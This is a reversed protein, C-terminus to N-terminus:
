SRPAPTKAADLSLLSQATRRAAEAGFSAFADALFAKARSKYDIGMQGHDLQSRVIACLDRRDQVHPTVGAAIFDVSSLEGVLDITVVPVDMLLAEIGAASGGTIVLPCGQLWSWIDEPLGSAGNAIVKLKAGAVNAIADQYYGAQDKRHLKVVIPIEPIAASLEALAATVARHHPLSVKHGPGSTAVLIWPQGDRLGLLDAISRNVQGSQRPLNEIYTAGTIEVQAAPAGSTLLAARGANGYVFFRDVVHRDHESEASLNGHMLCASAVGHRRLRLAVIRGEVTLDNGVMVTRPKMCRTMEDVSAIIEAVHALESKLITRLCGLLVDEPTGVFAPLAKGPHQELIQRLKRSKERARRLTAGWASRHYVANMGQHHIQHLLRPNDVVFVATHGMQRVAKAVPIQGDAHNAMRPWFVIEALEPKQSLIRAFRAGGRQELVWDRLPEPFWALARERWRRRTPRAWTDRALSLLGLSLPILVSDLVPIGEIELAPGWRSDELRPRVEDLWSFCARNTSEIVPATSAIM